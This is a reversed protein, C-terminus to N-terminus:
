FDYVVTGKFTMRSYLLLLCTDKKRLDYHKKMYLEIQSVCKRYYIQWYVCVKLLHRQEDFQINNMKVSCTKRYVLENAFEIGQQDMASALSIKQNLRKDFEKSPVYCRLYGKGKRDESPLSSM